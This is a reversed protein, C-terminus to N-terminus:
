RYNIYMVKGGLQWCLALTSGSSRRAGKRLLVVWGISRLFLTPLHDESAQIVLVFFSVVPLLGGANM